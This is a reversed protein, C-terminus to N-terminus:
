RLYVSEFEALARGAPDRLEMREGGIHWSATEHLVTHLRMENEMGASCAMETSALQTFRLRNGDLEYSGGFRNCGGSGAVRAGELHLVFHPEAGPGDHTVVDGRLTIAKWYTNLLEARPATDQDPPHAPAPAAATGATDQVAGRQLAVRGEGPCGGLAVLLPAWMLIQISAPVNRPAIM